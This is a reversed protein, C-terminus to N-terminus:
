PPVTILATRRIVSPEPNTALTQPIHIGQEVKGPRTDRTHVTGFSLPIYDTWLGSCRSRLPSVGLDMYYVMCDRVSVVEELAYCLHPFLYLTGSGGGCVARCPREVEPRIIDSQPHFLLIITCKKCNPWFTVPIHTHTHTNAVSTAHVM